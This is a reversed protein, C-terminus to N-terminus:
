ATNFGLYVLSFLQLVPRRWYMESAPVALFLGLAYGLIFISLALSQEFPQDINLDRGITELVAATMSTSM